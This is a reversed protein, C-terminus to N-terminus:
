VKLTRMKQGIIINEVGAKLLHHASERAFIVGNRIVANSIVGRVTARFLEASEKVEESNVDSIDLTAAIKERVFNYIEEWQPIERIDEAPVGDLGFMVKAYGLHKECFDYMLFSAAILGQSPDTLDKTGKRIEIMLKAFAEKQLEILM